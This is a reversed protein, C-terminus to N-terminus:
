IIAKIPYLHSTSLENHTGQEETGFEIFSKNFIPEEGVKCRSQYPPVVFSSRLYFPPM